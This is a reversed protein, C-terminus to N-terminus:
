NRLGKIFAKWEAPTFRLTGGERDKTNRVAVGSRVEVCNGNSFSFSPERWDDAVEVCHSSASHSSARYNAMVDVLLM